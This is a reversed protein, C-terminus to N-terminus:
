ETMPVYVPRKSKPQRLMNCQKRPNEKQASPHRPDSTVLNRNNGLVRLPARMAEKPKGESRKSTPPRQNRPKQQERPGKSPGEIAPTGEKSTFASQDSPGPAAGGRVM